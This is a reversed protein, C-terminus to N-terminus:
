SSEQGARAAGSGRGIKRGPKSPKKGAAGAEPAAAEPKKVPYAVGSVFRVKEAYIKASGSGALGEVASQLLPKLPYCIAPRFKVGQITFDRSVSFFKGRTEPAKIM